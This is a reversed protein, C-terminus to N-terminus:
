EAPPAIFGYSALIAQGESSMLFDVFAQALAKNKSASVVAAPYVIKSHQSPDATAAVKVKDGGAIADTSFMMGVDVEGSTVYTLTQSANKTYIAKPKVQAFIGLTNLVEEAYVGHPATAPDGYAIKEVEPKALDAISSIGLTSNAPVAAVIENSAFVKVSDKDLLDKELLATVQSMAASAFVDVEAGAEIQKQLTGSADFNFATETSNAADFAAGIKTFADKLSSAASVTLKVPEATAPPTTTATAATSVATSGAAATTSASAATTETSGSGCASLGAALLLLLVALLTTVQCRRSFKFRM